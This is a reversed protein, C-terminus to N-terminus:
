SKRYSETFIFRSLRLDETPDSNEDQEKVLRCLLNKTSFWFVQGTGVGVRTRRDVQTGLVYGIFFSVTTTRCPDLRSPVKRYVFFYYLPFSLGPTTSGEERSVSSDNPYM